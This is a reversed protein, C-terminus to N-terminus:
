RIWLEYKSTDFRTEVDEAFDKNIDDTKIYVIFCYILIKSKYWIKTKSYMLLKSLELISLGSYAPKNM